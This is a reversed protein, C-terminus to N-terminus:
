ADRSGARPNRIPSRKPAATPVPVNSTRACGGTSTQDGPRRPVAPHSTAQEHLRIAEELAELRQLADRLGAEGPPVHLTADGPLRPLQLEETPTPEELIPV